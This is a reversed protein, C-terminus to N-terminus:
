PTTAADAAPKMSGALERIQRSFVKPDSTPFACVGNECVYATARGGIPRKGAVFPIWQALDSGELPMALVRNPVFTGRLVALLDEIAGDAAPVLVIEKPRDHFFDLALLMEGLSSPRAELPEQFASITMTASDRFGSQTTWESLRLLNLLAVSNGSPEAGDDDPKARVLVVEHDEATMFYGGGSADAFRLDLVAQLALAEQLWRPNSDAEYLDLLGAIMFAYDDLFAAGESRENSFHRRLRGDVRMRTLIFEAARAAQEVYRPEALAFGARAFASIMLGNWAVVIKDDLHPAPRRSRVEYLRAHAREILTRLEGSSITLEQAVQDLPRPTHLINRGEFNGADTVDHYAIVARKSAPDLAAGIEAPTWTFFYGEEAHGSPTLSDADTASFFGGNPATMERSVYDLTKRAVRAFSEDRTAQWAEVYAITLLANDYLMKEFHPVLWRDDTSYRHFGGGVQDHLGGAAMKELTQRVMALADEDDTRRHHRLLFRLPLSSPFKPKRGIGGNEEDYANKLQEFALDFVAPSAIVTSNAARGELRKQIASTLQQASAEVQKPDSAYSRSISELVTKFAPRGRSDVPPFYTGAYFPQRAPTVWVNLPWGGRGTLAQAATMYAADIDPRVERDVKIAIFHENLFTATEVDDFSEEEMVHCWHCTSYGISVLVPRGLRAAAEFAEDGWPYWNVPNHAHQQLYPSSELLLRNSFIPAGNERRHRTRPVYDPGNESLAKTLEKQLAEPFRAAGPLANPVVRADVDARARSPDITTGVLLSILVVALSLRMSHVVWRGNELSLAVALTTM